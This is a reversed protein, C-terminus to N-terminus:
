SAASQNKIRYGDVFEPGKLRRTNIWFKATQAQAFTLFSALEEHNEIQAAAEICRRARICRAWKVQKETGRMASSIGYQKEIAAAEALEASTRCDKCPKAAQEEFYREAKRKDSIFDEYGNIYTAGAKHGCTHTIERYIM